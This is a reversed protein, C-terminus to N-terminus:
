YDGKSEEKSTDNNNVAPIDIIKDFDNGNVSKSAENKDNKFVGDNGLTV